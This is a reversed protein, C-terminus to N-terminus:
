NGPVVRDPQTKQQEQSITVLTTTKGDRGLQRVRPQWGDSLHGNANTYELVYVDGDRTAVGTPSWPREAKLVTEIQGDTSIKVVCRCGCAAAYVTGQADVGLGRLFVTPADRDCDKIVVPNAVTTFTGNTRVKIVGTLCAAYITQDPGSALGTIGLKEIAKALDPAFQEQKGDPSIRLMGVSAKGGASVNLGYYLYGDGNIAVPAGGDAVLLAPSVGPPTIREVLKLNSRAFWGNTDLAMWHGGLKDHYASLKGAADIKWITRAASDQFFVRGQSDVVIGSGPHSWANLALAVM